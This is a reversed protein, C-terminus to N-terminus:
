PRLKACGGAPSRPSGPATSTPWRTPSSSPRRIRHDPLAPPADTAPSTSRDAAAVDDPREANDYGRRHHDPLGEMARRLPRVANPRRGREDTGPVRRGGPGTGGAVAPDGYAAVAPHLSEYMGELPSSPPATATTSRNDSPEPWARCPSSAARERSRADGAVGGQDVRAVGFFNVEMVTACTKSRSNRWRAPWGRARRQEGVVDISRSRAAGPRHGHDGITTPSTSASRDRRHHRRRRTSGAPRGDRDTHRMTAIVTDGQRAFAVATALGIGSSCGTIVVVRPM